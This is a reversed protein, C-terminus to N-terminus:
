SPDKKSDFPEGNPAPAPERVGLSKALRKEVLKGIMPYHYNEGKLVRYGAWQGLIHFLPIALMALAALILSGFFLIIAFM